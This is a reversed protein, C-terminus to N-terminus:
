VGYVRIDCNNCKEEAGGQVRTIVTIDNDYQPIVIDQLCAQLIM